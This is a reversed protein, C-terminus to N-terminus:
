YIGDCSTDSCRCDSSRQSENWIRVTRGIVVNFNMVKVNLGSPIDILYMFVSKWPIQTPRNTWRIFLPALLPLITYNKTAHLIQVLVSACQHLPWFSYNQEELSKLALELRQLFSFAANGVMELAKELRAITRDSFAQKCLLVPAVQLFLTQFMMISEVPDMLTELRSCFADWIVEFRELYADLQEMSIGRWFTACHSLIYVSLLDQEFFPKRLKLHVHFTSLDAEFNLNRFLTILRASCYSQGLETYLNLILHNYPLRLEPNDEVLYRFLEVLLMWTHNRSSSLLFSWLSSEIQTWVHDSLNQTCLKMSLLTQDYMSSIFSNSSGCFSITQCCDITELMRCIWNNSVADEDIYRLMLSWLFVQIECPQRLNLRTVNKIDLGELIQFLIQKQSPQYPYQVLSAINAQVGKMCVQSEPCSLFPEVAVVDFCYSIIGAVTQISEPQVLHESHQKLITNLNMLYFKVLMCITKENGAKLKHKLRELHVLVCEFKEKILMRTLECVVGSEKLKGLTDIASKWGFSVAQIDFLQGYKCIRLLLDIWEKMIHTHQAQSGITQHTRGITDMLLRMANQYSTEYLKSGKAKLNVRMRNENVVSVKKELLELITHTLPKVSVFDSLHLTELRNLIM